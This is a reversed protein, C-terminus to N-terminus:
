EEEADDATDAAEAQLKALLEQARKVKQEAKELPTLPKAKAAEMAERAKDIIALYEAQEEESLYEILKQNPIRKAGSGIKITEKYTLELAGDIAAEEFRNINYYKRNSDNAPLAITKGEDVIKCTESVVENGDEGTQVVRYDNEGYKVIKAM